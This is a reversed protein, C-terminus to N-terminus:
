KLIELFGNYNKTSTQLIYFYTGSNFDVPIWDNKYNDSNYIINGWRNYIKLISNSPLNKIVFAENIGDNNVTLVNPIFLENEECLILEIKDIYYYSIDLAVSSISSTQIQTDNYFCGIILYEINNSKNIFEYELKIWKSTDAIIDNNIYNPLISITNFSYSYIGLTDNTLYYGIGNSVYKWNGSASVFCSLCYKRNLELKNSLKVGLYERSNPFSVGSFTAFGAMGNGDFAYKHGYFNNPVGSIGNTSCTNYYDSSSYTPDFWNKVYGTVQGQNNPCIDYEEFSGNPVLNTQSKTECCFCLLLFFIYFSRNM